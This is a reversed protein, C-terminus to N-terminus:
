STSSELHHLVTMAPAPDLYRRTHWRVGPEGPWSVAYVRNRNTDRGISQVVGILDTRDRRVVLDGTAIPDFPTIEVAHKPTVIVSVDLRGAFDEILIGVEQKGVKALKLWGVYTTVLTTVAIEVGRDASELEHAEIPKMTSQEKETAIV